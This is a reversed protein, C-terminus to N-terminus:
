HNPDMSGSVRMLLNTEGTPTPSTAPKTFTPLPYGTENCDLAVGHATRDDALDPNKPDFLASWKNTGLPWPAKRLHFSGPSTLDTQCVVGSEPGSGSEAQGPLSCTGQRPCSPAGIELVCPLAHSPATMQGKPRSFVCSNSEPDSRLSEKQLGQRERVQYSAPRTQTPLM